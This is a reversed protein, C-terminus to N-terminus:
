VLTNKELLRKNVEMTFTQLKLVIDKMETIETALMQFRSEYDDFIEPNIEQSSQNSDSNKMFTELTTLRTDVLAIVQPLTLGVPQTTTPPTPPSSQSRPEIPPPPANARRKKALAASSM